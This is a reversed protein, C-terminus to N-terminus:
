NGIDNKRKKNFARLAMKELQKDVIKMWKNAQERMKDTKGMWEKAEGMMKILDHLDQQEQREYKM